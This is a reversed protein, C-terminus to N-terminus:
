KAAFIAAPPKGDASPLDLGLLRAIIAAQDRQDMEKIVGGKRIGPGHAVYGSDWIGTSKLAGIIIGVASDAGRVAAGDFVHARLEDVFGAPKSYQERQAEGLSGNDPIDYAM